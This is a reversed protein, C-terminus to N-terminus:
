VGRALTWVRVEAAGARLLIEACASTTAGTTLVDDVLLVRRGPLPRDDRLTFARRVNDARQPKTLRTQTQTARVRRLLRAELPIGTARSLQRGLREAQNFERERQKVPHLPVPVILDAPQERLAPLAERCLLGALFPEFWLAQQYKYRHIVDLVVGKAVVAARASAFKLDMERCNACEFAQTIEGDFPLGCRGCFPPRIFRVDQWCRACIFGDAATAREQGCQQCVEPYFLSLAADTWSRLSARLPAFNM